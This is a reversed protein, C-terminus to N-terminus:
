KQVKQDTLRNLSLDLINSVLLWGAAEKMKMTKNPDGYVCKFDFNKDAFIILKSKKM